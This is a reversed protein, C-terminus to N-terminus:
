HRSILSGVIEAGAEQMDDAMQQLRTVHSHTDRAVVLAGGARVALTQADAYEAAAPTDILIVDYQSSLEALLAACLQRTLLEQPNPAPAGAPLVSLERLEPIHQVVREASRGALLASLGLTNDVGFIQHQRPQRLDGDILLTREGLQSFVVALNAAVWSRGEGRDASVIALMHRPVQAGFWRLMLQSRTARLSEVVPNFPVYAAALEGSLRSKGAVLYPYDFQRSLAYQIDEETVLRLRKAAEGFRLGHKRQLALVREADESRLRGEDILIAGLPKNRSDIAQMLPANM